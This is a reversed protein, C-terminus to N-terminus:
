LESNLDRSQNVSLLWDPFLITNGSETPEQTWSNTMEVFRRMAETDGKQVLKAVERYKEPLAKEMLKGLILYDRVQVLYVVM